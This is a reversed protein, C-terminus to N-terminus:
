KFMELNKEIDLFVSDRNRKDKIQKTKEKYIPLIINLAQKYVEAIKNQGIKEAYTKFARLQMIIEELIQFQIQHEALVKKSGRSEELWLESLESIAKSDAGIVIRPIMKLKGKFEQNDSQFYKVEAMKGEDIERKIREFKASTDSNFTADIAMGLHSVPQDEPTFEVIMDVGNAIDDFRSTKITETNSGLWDSQEGQEFIIAEFITALKNIEELAPTTQEQFQKERKAVYKKDKDIDDYTDKFDEMQVENEKIVKKAREFAQGSGINEIMRDKIFNFNKM